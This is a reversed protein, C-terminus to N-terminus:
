NVCKEHKPCSLRRLLRLIVNMNLHYNVRSIPRINCSNNSGRFTRKLRSFVYERSSTVGFTTTPTRQKTKSINRTHIKAQLKRIIKYFRKDLGSNLCHWWMSIFLGVCQIKFIPTSSINMYCVLFNKENTQMLALLLFNLIYKTSWITEFQTSESYLNCVCNTESSELETGENNFVQKDALSIVDTEDLIPATNRFTCHTRSTHMM